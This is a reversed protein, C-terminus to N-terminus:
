LPRGGVISLLPSDMSPSGQVSLTSQAGEAPYLAGALAVLVTCMMPSGEGWVRWHAGELFSLCAAVEVLPSRM